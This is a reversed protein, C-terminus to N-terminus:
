AKQFPDFVFFSSLNEFDKNPTPQEKQSHTLKQYNEEQTGLYQSNLISKNFSSPFYQNLSLKLLSLM